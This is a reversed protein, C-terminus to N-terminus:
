RGGGLFPAPLPQVDRVGRLCAHKVPERGPDEARLGEARAHNRRGLGKQGKM